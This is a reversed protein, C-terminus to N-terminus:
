EHTPNRNCASQCALFSIPLQVVLQKAFFYPTLSLVLTAGGTLAINWDKLVFLTILVCCILLGIVTKIKANGRRANRDSVMTSEDFYKLFLQAL